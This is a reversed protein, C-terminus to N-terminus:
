DQALTWLLRGLASLTSFVRPSVFATYHIDSIRMSRVGPLAIARLSVIQVIDGFYMVQVEDKFFPTCLLLRNQHYLIKLFGVFQLSHVRLDGQAGKRGIDLYALGLDLTTIKCSHISLTTARRLRRRRGSSRAAM